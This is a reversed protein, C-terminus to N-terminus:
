ERWHLQTEPLRTLKPGIKEGPSLLRQDPRLSAADSSYSKWVSCTWVNIVLAATTSTIYSKFIILQQATDADARVDKTQLHVINRPTGDWSLPCETSDCRRCLFRCKEDTLPQTERAHPAPSFLEAVKLMNPQLRSSQIHSPHRAGGRRWMSVAEDTIRQTSSSKWAFGIISKVWIWM